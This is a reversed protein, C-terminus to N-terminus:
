IERKSMSLPLRRPDQANLDFTRRYFPVWLYRGGHSMAMEVPKGGFARSEGGPYHKFQYYGSMPAWLASDRGAFNYNVVYKKELTSADYAVTRCGELSNIFFTAGDASFSASKPSFIDRDFTSRDAGSYQQRKCINYLRIHGDVGVSTDGVASHVVPPVAKKTPAAVRKSTDVSLAPITDASLQLASASVFISVITPIILKM